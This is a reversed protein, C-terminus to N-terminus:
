MPFPRVLWVLGFWVLGFLAFWLLCNILWVVGSCFLVFWGFYVLGFWVLGSWVLGFLAFWLV